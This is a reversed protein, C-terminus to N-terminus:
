ASQARILHLADRLLEGCIRKRYDDTSRIDSIPKVEEMISHRAKEILNENLVQNSLIAETKIARKIQPSVSGTSIRIEDINGAKIWGLVALSVKSIALAKRQGVKRFYWFQNEAKPFPIYIFAIYHNNKLSTEGPSLMVQDIKLKEFGNEQRPGIWLEADLVSLVPLSDGAPSANAINGGLTARNQIQVSGIQRCAEVLIPLKLQISRNSIIEALPLAAGILVHSDTIEFTQHIETVSTLDVLNEANKWREELVMIDTAGALYALEATNERVIKDLEELSKPRYIAEM